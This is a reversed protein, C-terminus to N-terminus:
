LQVSMLPPSMNRQKLLSYSAALHYSQVLAAPATLEFEEGSSDSCHMFRMDDHQNNIWLM